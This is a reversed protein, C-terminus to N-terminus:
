PLYEFKEIVVETERQLPVKGGGFIYLNLHVTETEPTPVGSTFVKEAIPRGRTGPAKGAVTRFLARGPEWRISHSLVGAPAMFRSVNAPVYFPQVVYQANKGGPDGWRTIEIDLERHNQDEGLDDWTFLSLVAAPELHASNQVVFRYSGYGLSRSLQVEACRWQGDRQSIRLHLFGKEDTWANAPDYYSTAGGRDSAASRIKWDYGSFRLYSASATAGPTGARVAVALVEGGIAPLREIKVPPRYGPEVLLAAYEIGLHTVNKWKGDRDITTYPETALPQVWWLPGSHAYLVIQRGPPANRVTGEISELKDPGGEAAPPVRTFEISLASIPTTRNCGGHALSFLLLLLGVRWLKAKQANM